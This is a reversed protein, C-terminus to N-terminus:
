YNMKNRINDIKECLERIDDTTYHTCFDINNFALFCETNDIFCYLNFECPVEIDAEYKEWSYEIEDFKVNNFEDNLLEKLKIYKERIDMNEVDKNRYILM